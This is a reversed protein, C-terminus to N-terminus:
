LSLDTQQRRKRAYRDSLLKGIRILPREVSRYLLYAFAIAAPYGIAFEITPSQLHLRHMAAEVGKLTLRHTLYLSYTLLGLHWIIPLGLFRQYPDNQKIVIAAIFPAAFLAILLNWHHDTTSIVVGYSALMGVFWIHTPIRLLIARVPMNQDAIAIALLSGAMLGGYGRFLNPSPFLWVLLAAAIITAGIWLWRRSRCSSLLLFALPWGIYYKEEIGLTWAHYFTGGLAIPRIESCFALLWPAVAFAQRFQLPDNQFLSFVAALGVYLFISVYYLPVIRFARRIYFSTLCVSGTKVVERHLLSTILYGSLPFFIDVGVTGNLFWPVGPIHALVTFIVCFTRLGDLQRFYAHGLERAKQTAGNDDRPMQSSSISNSM